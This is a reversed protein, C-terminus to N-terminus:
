DFPAILPITRRGDRRYILFDRDITMIQSASHVESMRILCADALSIGVDKYRNMLRHIGELHAALSFDLRVGGRAVTDLVLAPDGGSREVLFCSESVVAECTLFPPEFREFQEGAWDHHADARSLYAVFPGTDIITALTM